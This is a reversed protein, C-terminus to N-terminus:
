QPQYSATFVYSLHISKTLGIFEQLQWGKGEFVRMRYSTVPLGTVAQNRILSM